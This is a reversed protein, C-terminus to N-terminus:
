MADLYPTKTCPMSRLTLMTVVARSRAAASTAAALTPPHDGREVHGRHDVVYLCLQNIAHQEM